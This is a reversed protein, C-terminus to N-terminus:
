ANKQILISNQEFSTEFRFEFDGNGGTFLTHTATQSHDHISKM